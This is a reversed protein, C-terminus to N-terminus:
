VFWYLMAAGLLIRYIVFPMFGARRLWRILLAIALLAVVCSAGAAILADLGLRIDGSEYLDFRTLSGAGLIAPISLLLSIRAAEPREFGVIM